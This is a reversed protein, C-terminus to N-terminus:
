PARRPLLWRRSSAGATVGTATGVPAHAVKRKDGNNAAHVKASLM